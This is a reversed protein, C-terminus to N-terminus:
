QGGHTNGNRMITVMGKIEGVDGKITIAFAVTASAFMLAAAFATWLLRIFPKTRAEVIRVVTDDLEEKVINRIRIRDDSDIM